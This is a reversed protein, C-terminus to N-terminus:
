VRQPDGPRRVLGSHVYDELTIAHETRLRTSVELEVAREDQVVGHDRTEVM